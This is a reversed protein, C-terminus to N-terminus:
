RAAGARWAAELEARGAGYVRRLAADESLGSGLEEVLWALGALGRRQELFRTFALAALYNRRVVDADDAKGGPTAPTTPTATAGAGTGAGLLARLADDPVERGELRQALGEHLWWPCHGRSKSHLLAHTLEHTLVRRAAPTLRSLGGLPVRIKGDFLGGVWEESLTVERFERGPYLLLTIPQPPSHDLVGSLEYLREELEDLVERALRVDVDGDYRVNFHASRAFDYGRGAHQEREAKLIKERLRDGARLEFARRWAALADAMREERNRLDGLLEHLDASDPHAALGDLVAALASADRHLAIEALAYGVLATPHRPADRLAADYADSAEEYRGADLARRGAVLNDRLRALVRPDPVGGGDLGSRAAPSAAAGAAGGSRAVPEVRLVSSRPLGLTGGATEYRVWEGDIWWREVEISGGGELVLRDAARAPAAAALLAAGALLAAIRAPAASM